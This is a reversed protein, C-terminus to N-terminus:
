YVDKARETFAQVMNQAVESFVRGFAKAVLPSSFEFQLSLEVKCADDRLPTFVWGGSLAKFPGDQLAMSISQNEVLTNCTTFSHSIGVKSVAVSAVMQNEAQELVKSGVCGPLFKPYSAVDNVLAYMQAASFRVLASRNIEPM